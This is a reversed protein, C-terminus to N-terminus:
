EVAPQVQRLLIWISGVMVEAIRTRGGSGSRSVDGGVVLYRTQGWTRSCSLLIGAPIYTCQYLQEM